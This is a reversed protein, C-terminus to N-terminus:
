KNKRYDNVINLLIKAKEMSDSVYFVKMPNKKWEIKISLIWYNLINALLWKTKSNVEQIKWLSYESTKKDLFSKKEVWIIRNNTIVFLDLEHNLWKIYLFLFFSMWLIINVMNNLFHFWFLNYLIISLLLAWLFYWFLFVYVIWHRKILMKIKEWPGMNELNLM